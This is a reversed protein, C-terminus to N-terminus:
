WSFKWMTPMLFSAYPFFPLLITTGSTSSIHLLKPVMAMGEVVTVRLASKRNM